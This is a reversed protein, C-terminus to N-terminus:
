HGVNPEWDWFGAQSMTNNTLLYWAPTLSKNVEMCDRFGVQVVYSSVLNRHGLNPKLSKDLCDRIGVQFVPGTESSEGSNNSPSWCATAGGHHNNQYLIYAVLSQM